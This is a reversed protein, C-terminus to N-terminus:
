EMKEKESRAHMEETLMEVHKIMLAIRKSMSSIMDEAHMPNNTLYTHVKSKPIEM